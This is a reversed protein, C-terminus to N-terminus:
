GDQIVRDCDINDGLQEPIPRFVIKEISYSEILLVDGEKVEVVSDEWSIFNDGTTSDVGIEFKNIDQIEGNKIIYLAEYPQFKLTYRKQAEVIDDVNIKQVVPYLNILESDIFFEWNKILKHAENMVYLEFMNELTNDVTSIFNILRLNQYNFNVMLDLYIFILISLPKVLTNIDIGSLDPVGGQRYTLLLSLMDVEELTLNFINEGLEWFINGGECTSDVSLFCPVIGISRLREKIPIPMIEPKVRMFMFTFYYGSFNKNFLMELFCNNPLFSRGEVTTPTYIFNTTIEGDTYWYTYFHYDMEPVYYEIKSM